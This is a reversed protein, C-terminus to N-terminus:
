TQKDPAALPQVDENPDLTLHYAVWYKLINLMYDVTEAIYADVLSIPVVGAHTLELVEEDELHEGAIKIRVPPKGRVKWRNNLATLSEYYSSSRRRGALDEVPGLAPANAGTVVIENMTLDYSIFDVQTERSATVTLGAIEVDGYGKVIDPIFRDRSSPLFLAHVRANTSKGPRLTNVLETMCEYALGRPQPGDYFFLTRNNPVLVRILRRERMESLDGKWSVKAPSRHEFVAEIERPM